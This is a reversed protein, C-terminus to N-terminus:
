LFPLAKLPPKPREGREKSGRHLKPKFQRLASQSPARFREVIAQFHGKLTPPHGLYAAPNKLFLELPVDPCPAIELGGRFVSHSVMNRAKGNPMTDKYLRIDGHSLSVFLSVSRTIGTSQDALPQSSFRYMFSYPKLARELDQEHVSM